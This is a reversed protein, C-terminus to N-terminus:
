ELYKTLAKTWANLTKISSKILKQSFSSGKKQEKRKDDYPKELTESNQLRSQRSINEQKPSQNNIPNSGQQFLLHNYNQNIESQFSEPPLHISSQDTNISREINSIDLTDLLKGHSNPNTESTQLNALNNLNSEQFNILDNILEKFDTTFLQKIKPSEQLLDFFSISRLSEGINSSNEQLRSIWTQINTDLLQIPSDYSSATQPLKSQPRLNHLSPPINSTSINGPGSPNAIEPGKLSIYSPTVQAIM